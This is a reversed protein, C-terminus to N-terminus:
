SRSPFSYAMAALAHYLAPCNSASLRDLCAMSEGSYRGQHFSHQAGPKPSSFTIDIDHGSSSAARSLRLAPPLRVHDGLLNPRRQIGLWLGFGTIRTRCSRNSNFRSLELINPATHQVAPNFLLNNVQAMPMAKKCRFWEPTGSHAISVNGWCTM